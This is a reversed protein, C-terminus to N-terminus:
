LSSSSAYQMSPLSFLETLVKLYLNQMLCSSSPVARNFPVQEIFVSGMNKCLSLSLFTPNELFMENQPVNTDGGIQLFFPSKRAVGIQRGIIQLLARFVEIM